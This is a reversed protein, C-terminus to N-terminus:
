GGHAPEQEEAQDGTGALDGIGRIGTTVVVGWAAAGVRCGPAGIAGRAATGVGTRGRRRDDALGHLDGADGRRVVGQARRV